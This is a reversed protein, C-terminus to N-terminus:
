RLHIYFIEYSAREWSRELWTCLSFPFLADPIHDYNIKWTWNSPSTGLVYSPQKWFYNKLILSFGWIGFHFRRSALHFLLLFLNECVETFRARQMESLSWQYKWRHKWAKNLNLIYLTQEKSSMKIWQSSIWSSILSFIREEEERFFM